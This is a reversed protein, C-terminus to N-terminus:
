SERVFCNCSTSKQRKGWCKRLRDECADSLLKGDAVFLDEDRVVGEFGLRFLPILWWFLSRAFLGSTSEPSLYDYRQFLIKRKGKAELILLLLKVGLISTLIANGAVNDGRMWRTRLQAADLPLTFFLYANIISSPRVNSIHEFYSLICLGLTATFALLAAPLSARTKFPSHSIAIINVIQLINFISTLIQRTLPLSSQNLHTFSVIKSTLLHSRIVKRPSKWLHQIRPPILILLFVSPIISLITEEFLLTFDFTAKGLMKYFPGFNDDDMLLTENFIRLELPIDSYIEM